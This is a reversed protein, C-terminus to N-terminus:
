SARRPAEEELLEEIMKLEEALFRLIDDLTVLGVLTGMGDVVPLRRMHGMRMSALAAEISTDRLITTPMPTMVDRVPTLKPDREAAVLRVTVDRDSVIGMPRGEPDVVIITGLRRDRMRRAIDLVSEEPRATIVDRIIIRAISM